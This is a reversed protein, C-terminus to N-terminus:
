PIVAVPCPAHHVCGRSTSGLVAAALGSHGRGGV